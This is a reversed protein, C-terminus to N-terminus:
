KTFYWDTSNEKKSRSISCILNNLNMEDIKRNYAYNKEDVPGDYRNMKETSPDNWRM